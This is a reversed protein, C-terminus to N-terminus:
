TTPARQRAPSEPVDRVRGPSTGFRGIPPGLVGQWQPRARPVSGACPRATGAVLDARSWWAWVGVRGAGERRSCSRFSARRGVRVVRKGLQVRPGSRRARVGVDAGGVVLGKSAGNGAVCSSRMWAGVPVGLSNNNVHSQNEEVGMSDGPNEDRWDRGHRRGRLGWESTQTQRQGRGHSTRRAPDVVFGSVRLWEPQPTDVPSDIGSDCQKPRRHRRSHSAECWPLEPMRVGNLQDVLAHRQDDDGGVRVCSGRFRRL